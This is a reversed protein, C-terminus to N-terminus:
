GVNFNFNTINLIYTQDFYFFCLFLFADVKEWYDTFKSTNAAMESASIEFNERPPAHGWVRWVPECSRWKGSGWYYLFREATGTIYWGHGQSDQRNDLFAFDPIACVHTERISNDKGGLIM